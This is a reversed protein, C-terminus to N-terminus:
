LKKNRKLILKAIESKLLECNSIICHGGIKGPMEKLIPRLVHKWGLKSYGKNYTQNADTYVIDFPINRKKCWKYIEKELMISLGYQTTSWLKLAETTEPEDIMKIEFGAKKFYDELEKNPPALYKVFTLLSEKLRPHIGRVPSHFAKCKRTIGVPVTSHIVMFRPKYRKQYERVDDVFEKGHYPFCIHVVDVSESFHVTEKDILRVPYHYKLVWFLAKGVEGAGVIISIKTM